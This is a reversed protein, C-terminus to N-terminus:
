AVEPGLAAGLPSAEDLQQGRQGLVSRPGPVISAHLVQDWLILNHLRSHYRDMCGESSGQGGAQVLRRDVGLSLLFTPTAGRISHAKFVHTTVGLAEMAVLCHKAIREASICLAPNNQNRFFLRAPHNRYRFLYELVLDRTIGDVRATVLQGKKDRACVFYQNSYTCVIGVMNHLDGLRM